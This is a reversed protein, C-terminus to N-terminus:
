ETLGLAQMAIDKTRKFDAKGTPSRYV